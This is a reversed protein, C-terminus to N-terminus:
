KAAACETRWDWYQGHLLNGDSGAYEKWSKSVSKIQRLTVDSSHKISVCEVRRGDGPEEQCKARYGGGRRRMRAPRARDRLRYWWHKAKGENHLASVIMWIVSAVIAVRM